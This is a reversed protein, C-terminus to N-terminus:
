QEPLEKKRNLLLMLGCTLLGSVAIVIFDIAAFPIGGIPRCLAGYGFRYLYGGTLILEGAYMAITTAMSVVTPVAISLWKSKQYFICGFYVGFTVGFVVFFISMLIASLSSINLTGNRYFATFCALICLGVFVVASILQVILPKKKSYDQEKLMMMFGCVVNIVALIIVLSILYFHVKFAPNNGAYISKGISRLVEPTAACLSLQWSQLPIQRSSLPFEVIPIQEFALEMVGFLVAGLVSSILLTYKKGIRYLIPMLCVVVILSICIPTYPIIYKPYDEALVIKNLLFSRFAALGMYIPYVSALLIALVSLLYFSRYQNKM